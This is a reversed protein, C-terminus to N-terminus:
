DLWLDSISELDLPERGPFEVTRPRNYVSLAEFQDATEIDAPHPAAPSSSPDSDYHVRGDTSFTKM